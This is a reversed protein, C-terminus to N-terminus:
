DKLLAGEGVPAFAALATEIRGLTAADLALEAAAQNEAIHAPTRSGPIPVVHDDQHLLWALALQGPTVGLEAAIARLPAYRDNNAALNEASFRAHHQRFDGEAVQRVTGTLFGGGLPSWAVAGIGLERAAALLEPDIPQWMSWQTQVAAVPHVAHAARLQAATVNSVGLHRVLGDAILEAVAGVTEEFPVQPDPFHPYYLDIVDTGLNRLSQEAYGRVREPECNVALEGFAFHVPFRHAEAGEPVRLGFKTALVVEDRRGRLARGVLQENHGDAGYADATDIMRAGAGIAARLADQGRREDIEGYMGPSLVMAGFGIPSSVLTGLTRGTM